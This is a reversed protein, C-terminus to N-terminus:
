VGWELLTRRAAEKLRIGEQKVLTALLEYEDEGFEAQVLKKSAALIAGPL